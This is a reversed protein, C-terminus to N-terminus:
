VSCKARASNKLGGGLNTQRSYNNVSIHLTKAALMSSRPAKSIQGFIPSAFLHIFHVYMCIINLNVIHKLVKQSCHVM